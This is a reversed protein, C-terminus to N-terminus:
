TITSCSSHHMQLGCKETNEFLLGRNYFLVCQNFALWPSLLALYLATSNLCLLFAQLVNVLVQM